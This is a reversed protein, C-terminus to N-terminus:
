ISTVKGTALVAGTPQGTPSGESPEDSIALVANALKGRLPAAVALSGTAQDPLLGLSIPANQGEILWLEFARGSAANGETRNLKLVGNAEDYLAVLRVAGTEGSLEAVLSPGAESVPRPATVYLAAVAAFAALSALSVGRWFALSDRWGARPAAVTAFLDRELAERIRAPPAVPEIGESLTAFHEDWFRVKERLARDDRLRRAFAVREGHPLVGLAYEAALADDDRRDTAGASM